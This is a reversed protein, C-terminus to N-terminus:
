QEQEDTKTELGVNLNFKIPAEPFYDYIIFDEYRFDDIDEIKRAFKLKPIIDSGKRLLQGKAIDINNEYIHVDVGNYVLEDPQMNCVEAIMYTLMAAQAINFPNGNTFDNSRMIFDCSLGREPINKDEIEWVPIKGEDVYCYRKKFIDIREELSLKRTYFVYMMHCPPLGMEDIEDVNWSNLVMRRDDPNTKLTNIIKKIQDTHTKGYDRWQCGYIRGLDGACYFRLFDNSNNSFLFTTGSKVAEIFEEKTYQKEVRASKDLYYRYADDDWIHVNNDVLYKINDCGKLFWLLEHIVGKVYVKKTTLLPIGEKLNMRMVVGFKSRTMGARTEKVCGNEIIDSLVRNYEIDTNTM